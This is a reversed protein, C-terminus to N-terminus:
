GPSGPEEGGEPADEDPTAAQMMKTCVEMMESMQSMMNMMGGMDGGQMMDRMDDQNMPPAQDIQDQAFVMPAGALGTAVIALAATRAKSIM